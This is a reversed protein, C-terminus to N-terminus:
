SLFVGNKQSKDGWRMPTIIIIIISRTTKSSQLTTENTKSKKIPKNSNIQQQKDINLLFIHNYCSM